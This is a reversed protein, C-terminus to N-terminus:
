LNQELSFELSFDKHVTTVYVMRTLELENLARSALLSFILNGGRGSCAAIGSRDLKTSRHSALLSELGLNGLLLRPRALIPLLLLRRIIVVEADEIPTLM